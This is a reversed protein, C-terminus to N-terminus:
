QFFRVRPSRTEDSLLKNRCEAIQEFAKRWRRGEPKTSLFVKGLGLGEAAEASAIILEKVDMMSGYSVKSAADDAFVYSDIYDQYRESLELSVSCAPAYGFCHIKFERDDPSGRRFEPAYDLLMMTLISATAAGLSHGVIYLASTSHKNCYAILQPAVHTFFWQAASKM